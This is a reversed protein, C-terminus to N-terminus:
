SPYGIRKTKKNVLHQGDGKPEVTMRRDGINIVPIGWQKGYERTFRIGNNTLWDKKIKPNYVLYIRKIYRHLNPITGIVFEEQYQSGSNNLKRDQLNWRTSIEPEKILNYFIANADLPIIKHTQSLKAQDIELCIFGYQPDAKLAIRSNRTMSTGYLTRNEIEHKWNGPLCDEEFVLKAKDHNMNHFLPADRGESLVHTQKFFDKGEVIDKLHGTDDLTYKRVETEYEKPNSALENLEKLTNIAQKWNQQGVYIAAQRALYQPHNYAPLKSHADAYQLLLEEVEKKLQEATIPNGKSTKFAANSRYNENMEREFGYPSSLWRLTKATKEQINTRQFEGYQADITMRHSLDGVHEIVGNLVGGGNVGQIDTMILEPNGRQEVGINHFAKEVFSPLGSRGIEITEVINIYKRLDFSMFFYRWNRFYKDLM